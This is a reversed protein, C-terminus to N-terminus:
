DNIYKEFIYGIVDPNITKGETHERTDLHWEWNDFFEFIREFANDEGPIYYMLLLIGTFVQVLFLFLSIGCMYYWISHGHVPVKKHKILNRIPSLDLREDLWNEIISLKNKM